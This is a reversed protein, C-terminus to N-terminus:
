PSASTTSRIEPTSEPAAYRSWTFEHSSSGSLGPLRPWKKRRMSVRTSPDVSQSARRMASKSAITCPVGRASGDTGTRRGPSISSSRRACCRRSPMAISARRMARSSAIPMTPRFGKDRLAVQGQRAYDISEGLIRAGEQPAHFGTSNEAEVFDLYFQSRRQLYLATQLDAESRGAAKAAKIDDILGVVAAMASNRLAWHRDQIEEVRAKLEVETIKEDHKSHCAVCAAKLNLVPSRVWHDTVTQEKYNISPMHCDVCTVGSRAHVGQSWTEFEPHQAKLAAAGTDKHTWDRFGIEDYYAMIQEVKLGKAWPYTLRKEPGKFYYEVHCQGCVYARMENPTADKNVDYNKVGQSAKFARMGEM